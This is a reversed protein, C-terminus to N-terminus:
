NQRHYAHFSVAVLKGEDVSGTHALRQRLVGVPPAEHRLAKMLRTMGNGHIAAGILVPIIKNERLVRSSIAYLADSS